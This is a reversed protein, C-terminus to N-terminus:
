KLLVAWFSKEFQMVHAGFGLGIYNIVFLKDFKFVAVLVSEYVLTKPAPGRFSMCYMELVALALPSLEFSNICKWALDQVQVFHLKEFRFPFRIKWFRGNLILKEFRHAWGDRAKYSKSYTTTNNSESRANLVLEICRAASLARPESSAITGM